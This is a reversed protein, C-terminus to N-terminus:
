QSLPLIPGYKGSKEAFLVVICRLISFVRQGRNGAKESRDNRGRLSRALELRGRRNCTGCPSCWTRRDRRCSGRLSVRRAGPRPCRMRAPQATRAMGSDPRDPIGRRPATMRPAPPECGTEPGVARRNPMKDSRGCGSERFRSVPGTQATADPPNVILPIRDGHPRDPNEPRSWNDPNSIEM